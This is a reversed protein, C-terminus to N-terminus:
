NLSSKPEYLYYQYQEIVNIPVSWTFLQQVSINAVSLEQFSVYQAQPHISDELVLKKENTAPRFCYPIHEITVDRLEQYAPTERYSYYDLCDFQLVSHM